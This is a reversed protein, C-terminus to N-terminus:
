LFLPDTIRNKRDLPSVQKGNSGHASDHMGGMPCVMARLRRLGLVLAWIM